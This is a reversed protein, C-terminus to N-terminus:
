ELRRFPLRQVQELRRVYRQVTEYSHAFRREAVLDQCIRQATFGNAGKAEIRDRFRDCDSHRVLSLSSPRPLDGAHLIATQIATRWGSIDRSRRATDM